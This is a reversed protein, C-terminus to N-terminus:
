GCDIGAATALWHDGLQAQDLDDWLCFAGRLGGGRQRERHYLSPSGAGESCCGNDRGAWLCREPWECVRGRLRHSIAMDMAPSFAAGGDHAKPKKAYSTAEGNGGAVSPDSDAKLMFRRLLLLGMVFLIVPVWVRVMDTPLGTLLYASLFGGVMGPGAIQVVWRPRVNQVKWHALASIFGSGIKALSVTGVVIAPALGGALMVSGSLGGFGMGAVTDLFQGVAGAVVAVTWQWPEM